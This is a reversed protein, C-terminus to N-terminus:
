KRLLQNLPGKSRLLHLGPDIIWDGTDRLRVRGGLTENSEVLIVEAGDVALQIAASLGSLGGGVVVVRM